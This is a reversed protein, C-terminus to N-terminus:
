RAEPTRRKQFKWGRNQGGQPDSRSVVFWDPFDQLPQPLAGRRCASRAHRKLTDTTTPLLAALQKTTYVEPALDPVPLKPQSQPVLLGSKLQQHGDPAFSGPL